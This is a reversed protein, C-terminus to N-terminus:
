QRRPHPREHRARLPGPPQQREHNVREQGDAASAPAPTIHQALAARYASGGVIGADIDLRFGAADLEILARDALHKLAIEDLDQPVQHWTGDGSTRREFGLSDLLALLEDPAGTRTDLYLVSDAHFMQVDVGYIDARNILM